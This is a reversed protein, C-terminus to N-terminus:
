TIRFKAIVTCHQEHASTKVTFIKYPGQTTKLLTICVRLWKTNIQRVTLKTLVRRPRNDSHIKTRHKHYGYQSSFNKHIKTLFSPSTILLYQNRCDKAWWELERMTQIWHYVCQTLVHRVTVSELNGRVLTKTHTILVVICSEANIEYLASPFHGLTM